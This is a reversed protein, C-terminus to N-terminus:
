FAGANALAMHEVDLPEYEVTMHHQDAKAIDVPAITQSYAPCTPVIERVKVFLKGCRFTLFRWLCTFAKAPNSGQSIGGITFLAKWGTYTVPIVIPVFCNFILLRGSVVANPFTEARYDLLCMM